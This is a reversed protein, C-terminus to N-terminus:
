TFYMVAGQKNALEMSQTLLDYLKNARDKEKGFVEIAWFSVLWQLEIMEKPGKMSGVKNRELLKLLIQM